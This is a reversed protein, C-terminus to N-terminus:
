DRMMWPAEWAGFDAPPADMTEFDDLDETPAQTGCNRRRAREQDRLRREAEKPTCNWELALEFALRHARCQEALSAYRSM